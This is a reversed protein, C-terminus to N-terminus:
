KAECLDLVKLTVPTAVGGTRARAKFDPDHLMAVKCGDPSTVGAANGRAIRKTSQPTILYIGYDDERDAPRAFAVFGRATPIARARIAQSYPFSVTEVRGDPYLWFARRDRGEPWPSRFDFELALYAGKFAYYRLGGFVEYCSFPLEVGAEDGPKHFRAKIYQTRVSATPGQCNILGLRPWLHWIATKEKVWPPNAPRESWPRCSGEPGRDFNIEGPKIKRTTEKGLEGYSAWLEGAADDAFIYSVYGDSAYCLGSSVRGFVKREGTRYNHTMVRAVRVEAGDKRTYREGTNAMIVFTENDVWGFPGAASTKLDIIRIDTENEAGVDISACASIAFAGLIVCMGQRLSM